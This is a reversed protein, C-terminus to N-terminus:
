VWKLGTAQATCEFLDPDLMDYTGRSALRPTHASTESSVHSSGFESMSELGGGCTEWAMAPGLNASTSNRLTTSQNWSLVVHSWHPASHEYTFTQLTEESLLSMRSQRACAEDAHAGTACGGKPNTGDALCTRSVVDASDCAWSLPSVLPDGRRPLGATRAFAGARVDTCTTRSRSSWSRNPERMSPCRSTILAQTPAPVMSLLEVQGQNPTM